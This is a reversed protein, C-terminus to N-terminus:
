GTMLYRLNLIQVPFLTTEIAFQTLSQKGSAVQPYQYAEERQLGKIEAGRNIHRKFFQMIKDPLDILPGDLEKDDIIEQTDTGKFRACRAVAQPFDQSPQASFLLFGGVTPM